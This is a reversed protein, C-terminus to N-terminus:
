RFYLYPGFFLLLFLAVGFFTWLWLNWGYFLFATMGCIAILELFLWAIVERKFVWKFMAALLVAISSVVILVTMLTFSMDENFPTRQQLFFVLAAMGAFFALIVVWSTYLRGVPRHNIIADRQAM